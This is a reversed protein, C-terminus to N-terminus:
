KEEARPASPSPPTTKGPPPIAAAGGHVCTETISGDANKRAVSFNMHDEDLAIMETGDPLVVTKLNRNSLAARRGDLRRNEEPTPLRLEGTEADRAIRMSAAGAPSVPKAQEGAGAAPSSVAAPKKRAATKPATSKKACRQKDGGACCDHGAAAVTSKRPASDDALLPLALLAAVGLLSPPTPRM